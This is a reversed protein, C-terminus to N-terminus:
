VVDHNRAYWQYLWMMAAFAHPDAVGNVILWQSFSMSADAKSSQYTTYLHWFQQLIAPSTPPPPLQQYDTFLWHPLVRHTIGDANGGIVSAASVAVAITLGVRHRSGINHCARNLPKM